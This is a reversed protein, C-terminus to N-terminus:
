LSYHNGKKRSFRLVDLFWLTLVIIVTMFSNVAKTYFPFIKLISLNGLILLIIITETINNIKVKTIEM